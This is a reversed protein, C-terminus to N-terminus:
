VVLNRKKLTKEEVGVTKQSGTNPHALPRSATKTVLVGCITGSVWNERQNFFRRGSMCWTGVGVVGVEERQLLFAKKARRQKKKEVKEVLKEKKGSATGV